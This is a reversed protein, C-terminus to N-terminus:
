PEKRGRFHDPEIQDIRKDEKKQHRIYDRIVHEDQGVISAFYGRAWFRQGVYNRQRGSYRRLLIPRVRGRSIVGWRRSRLELRSRMGPHVPNFPRPFDQVVRHGMIVRRHGHICEHLGDGAEHRHRLGPRSVLM